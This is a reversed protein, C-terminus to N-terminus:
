NSSSSSSSSTSPLLATLQSQADQLKGLASEMAAFQKKLRAEYSDMRTDFDDIDKQISDIVDGIANQRNTLVGGPEIVKGTADVSSSSTSAYRDVLDKLADGFGGADTEFLNTVDDPADELATKLADEDLELTGDQQTAIGISALTKYASGTSYQTGVVGQLSQMLDVVTGEGVFEGKIGADQNYARHTNIYSRVTNYADVFAKVNAVSTTTDTSVTIVAPSTTVDELNFTIGSVVGSVDNSASTVAVGNVTLAADAATSTETFTPVTGTGTLGSTDITISNSAGTDDGTVVLRYPTTADGTDMVYASVGVVSKNILAAVDDLSSNTSDITLATTTSGYTINLTGEAITGLADKSAFGDSIDTSREALSTVSVTYRGAIAGGSATVGVTSTDSSSSTTARLEDATDIAELATQMDTLKTALSAYANKISTETKLKTKMVDQPARAAAVLKTVMSDTDIGSVIGGVSIGM